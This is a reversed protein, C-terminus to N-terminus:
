HERVSGPQHLPQIGIQRLLRAARRSGTTLWAEYLRLVDQDRASIGSNRVDNLVDVVDAFKASLEAFVPAFARGRPNAPLAMSLTHYAGGGMRVYYGVGVAKRDLGEAMFGAIFLAVDGLRQLASNRGDGPSAEAADALMLALPRTVPGRDAQDHLAESRAFLTLLNVVYHATHGDMAVKNSAMAADVSDRFFEQLSPVPIVGSEADSTVM